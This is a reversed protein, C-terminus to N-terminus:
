VVGFRHQHVDDILKVVENIVFNKSVPNQSWRREDNCITGHHERKTGQYREL